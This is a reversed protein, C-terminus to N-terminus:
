LSASNPTSDMRLLEKGRQWIDMRLAGRAELKRAQTWTIAQTIRRCDMERFVDDMNTSTPRDPHFNFWGFRDAKCLAQTLESCEEIVRTVPSGIDKYQPHSM